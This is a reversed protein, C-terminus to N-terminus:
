KARNYVIEMAKFEKKNGDNKVFLEYLIKDPGDVKYTKTFTVKGGECLETAESKLVFSNGDASGKGLSSQQGTSMNDVWLFFFEKKATDYGYIGTGRFESNKEVVEETFFRGDLIPKITAVAEAVKYKGSIDYIKASTNWTGVMRKLLQHGVDPTAYSSYKEEVEKYRTTGRAAVSNMM